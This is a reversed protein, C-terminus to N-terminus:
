RAQGAAPVPPPTNVVGQPTLQSFGYAGHEPPRALYVPLSVQSFFGLSPKQYEALAEQVTQGEKMQLHMPAGGTVFSEWLTRGNELIKVRSIQETVSGKEPARDFQGFSRYSIERTQGTETTAQLVLPANNGVTMGAAVLRNTLDQQVKQQEAPQGQVRIDLSFSAGPRIALAQEPDINAAMRLADDHPIVTAHLSQQNSARDRFVHWLWGGVEGCANADRFEWASYKWLVIRRELDVLTGGGALLHGGFLWDVSTSPIETAFAIDRYIEGKVLDWVVLRQPSLAALQAGDPRFSLIRGSDGVGPLRGLTAGTLADLLVVGDAVAAALYKGGPSIAPSGLIAPEMSWIARGEPVNWVTLQSPFTECAVHDADIFAAWPPAVSHNNSPGNVNWVRVPELTRDSLKWVGLEPAVNGRKFGFDARALIFKGSRDIDVPKLPSPWPVSELAKGSVLNLVDLRTEAAKGPPADRIVVCARGTGRSLLLGDAAAFFGGLPSNAAVPLAIPKSVIKAPVAGADVPVAWGGPSGPTITQCRSWDGAPIADAAGSDGASAMDPRPNPASASGSTAAFPNEEGDGAPKPGAKAAIKRAMAQDDESLKELLMTIPKGAETELTLENGDLKVFRAKQKFKGTADTWTRLPRKAANGAGGGLVRIDSPPFVPTMEITGSKFKVKIWGNALYEVVEAVVRKGAWEVEVKDGPSLKGKGPEASCLGVLLTVILFLGTLIRNM